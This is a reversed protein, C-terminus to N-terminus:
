EGSLFIVLSIISVMSVSILRQTVEPNFFFDSLLPSPASSAKRFMLSLCFPLPRERARSEPAGRRHHARPSRVRQPVSVEGGGAAAQRRGAAPGRGPVCRRLRRPSPSPAPVARLLTRRCGPASAPPQEWGPLTLLHSSSSPPLLLSTPLSRGTQPRPCSQWVEPEGM